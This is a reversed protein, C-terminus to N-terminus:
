GGVGSKAFIQFHMLLLTNPLFYVAYIVSLFDFSNEQATVRTVILTFFQKKKFFINGGVLLHRQGANQPRKPRFYPIRLSTNITCQLETSFLVPFLYCSGSSEISGSENPPSVRVLDGRMDVESM